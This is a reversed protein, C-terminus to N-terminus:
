ESEGPLNQKLEALVHNLDTRKAMAKIEPDAGIPLKHHECLAQLMQIMKTNEDESLLNIQLDLHNRREAQAGSRNQSMLIFLSLFISELSVIMTLLSFPYPDFTAKGKSPMNIAMWVGFWMIHAVIFWMKGAQVAIVDSIRVSWSRRALTAKELECITRINHQTPSPTPMLNISARGMAHRVGDDRWKM